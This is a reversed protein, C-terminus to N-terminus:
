DADIYEGGDAELMTRTGSITYAPLPALSPPTLNQRKTLAQPTQWDMRTLQMPPLNHHFALIQEDPLQLIQQTTLLPIPREVKGEGTEEGDKLSISHAYASVYGLREELYSATALDTPRYYLQTDMNDRLTQARAKGYVTELQSLSQVAIWLSIERGVVTTAHEALAPIAVRGAEDILMLVPRCGRGAVGDYTTILEGIFTDWLLRVVPALALLDQEKWRLYITIPKEALMLDQVTFDCAAFCRVLQETLLPHLRACLTGWASLLFRSQLDAQEYRCDLLQTALNPDINQVRLAADALGLRLLHRIYPFPAQTEKRATLLLQTLMVIARQTFIVGDGEDPHMLLAAAAAFLEDETHRSSLPDYRHGVGTPDLVFVPGLTARYGATAAYLDGKLDNVVVSHQWSTLQNKALLGKGSRTRGVILMNGLEQRTPTPQVSVIKHQGSMGLLLGTDPPVHTQLYAIERKTAFRARHLGAPKPPWILIVRLWQWLTHLVLFIKPTLVLGIGM